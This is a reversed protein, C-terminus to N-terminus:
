FEEKEEEVYRASTDNSNKTRKPDRSLQFLHVCGASSEELWFLTQM